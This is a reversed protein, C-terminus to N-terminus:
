SNVHEFVTVDYKWCNEFYKQMLELVHWGRGEQASYLYMSVAVGTSNSM